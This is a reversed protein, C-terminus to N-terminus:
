GRDRPRPSTYLLCGKFKTSDYSIRNMVDSGGFVQPNEFSSTAKIKGTELNVLNLAVTTTGVDISLGYIVSKKNILIKENETENIIVSQSTIKYNNDIKYENESEFSTLIKRNRKRPTFSLDAENKITKPAINKKSKDSM